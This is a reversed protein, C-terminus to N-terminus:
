GGASVKANEIATEYVDVTQFGVLAQDNIVVTPTGVIGDEQAKQFDNNVANEVRVSTYDKKFQETDLGAEGAFAVLNEDSYGGSNGSSQNNFLLEHYEWFKDQEQAARAAFAANASEQGQAPFDHWEIRLTGDEVYKM